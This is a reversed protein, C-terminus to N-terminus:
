VPVRNLMEEAHALTQASIEVGGMMRAIEMVREKKALPQIHTVVSEGDAIKSVQLHRDGQAAVQALHTICLVQRAGSLTHLQQGVIEAVGGGIGVDVEDFILTPIRGGEATIVQLALSIRSLEGGSAVKNLPKLPQGPNASVQFEVQELGYASVEGEPLPPLDVAFRGGPMGLRQMQGGVAASLRTAAQQRKQSVGAAAKLYDKRVSALERELKDFNADFDELDALEARLRLLLGPLEEPRLQHKRALAHVAGLRQDLWALRQPDLELKDLYQHLQAAAEEVQILAENLLSHLEGLKPDFRTLEELKNMGRGILQAATGEDADMLLQALAQAGELLEAGNAVRRHEDELQAAEGDKLDLADLEKVQYRLLDLRAARDASQRRLNDLRTQLDRIQEYRTGLDKVAAELGAYTDLTARQAERRLLSQHEHQGHIDVLLEGLARLMQMTVPRGNIFGKSPRDREIVRRLICEGDADLGQQQLWHVAAQQDGLAFQASVEARECGHRIAGSEGRGGLALDLADILISKGAGTEGTLVTLGSNLSLELKRVIAFDRIYLGTLM